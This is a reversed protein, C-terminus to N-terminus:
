GVYAKWTPDEEERTPVGGDRHHDLYQVDLPAPPSPDPLYQCISPFRPLGWKLSLLSLVSQDHRHDIFDPLNPLGCSNPSDTLIRPDSCFDLWQDVFEITRHSRQFMMYAANSHLSYYYAPSDTDTLVFTDRKTWTANRHRQWTTFFGGNGVCVDLLPRLSRVPTIASDLYLVVDGPDVKDLLSRVIFPKWLWFGCGRPERLTEAHQEYFVLNRLDEDSWSVVVDVGYQEAVSNQLFRASEFRRDSFNLLFLRM